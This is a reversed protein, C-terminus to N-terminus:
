KKSYELYTAIDQELFYDISGDGEIDNLKDMVRQLLEIAKDLIINEKM